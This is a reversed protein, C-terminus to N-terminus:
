KYRIVGAAQEPERWEKLNYKKLYLHTFDRKLDRRKEMWFILGFKWGFKQIFNTIRLIFYRIRRKIKSAFFYRFVV